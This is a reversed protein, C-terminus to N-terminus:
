SIFNDTISPMIKQSEWDYLHQHKIKRKHMMGEFITFLKAYDPRTAYEFTRLYNTVQIYDEFQPFLSADKTEEKSKLVIDKDDNVDEWPLLKILEALIYMLSWLDDSRGQESKKLTNISSYKLTGRFLADQRATRHVLKGDKVITYERGLGFDLIYVMRNRDLDIGIAFNSPKVDRHVYNVDHVCCKRNNFARLIRAELKLVTGGAVNNNEAKLGAFIGQKADKVKFVSGCGGSSLKKVIKFRKGVLLGLDLDIPGEDNPEAPPPTTSPQPM